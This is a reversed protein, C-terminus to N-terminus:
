ERRPAPTPAGAAAPAVPAEEWLQCALAEVVDNALVFVVDQGQVMAFVGDTRAKFGVMLTKQIGTEGTVGLTLTLAPQDLGYSALSAPAQCEIRVARLNSIVFLIGEVAERSVARGAGERVTWAGAADREVQQVVAGRALAMRTVAERGVALVQLNRYLLPDVPVAAALVGTLVNTRLIMVPERTRADASEFRAALTATGPLRQGVQLWRPAVAAVAAAGSAPATAGGTAGGGESPAAPPISEGVMLQVSFAPPVLGRAGLEADAVEEFREAQWGTLHRVLQGVLVSDAAWQTPECVRWGGEAARELALRQDGQRLAVGRVDQPRLSFVRRDRLDNVGLAFAELVARELTFIAATGNLRAYCAAADGDVERGVLLEQAETQGELWVTLRAAAEDPALRCSAVLGAVDAVANTRAALPLDDAPQDCVFQQVRLAYLAELLRMVVAGEARCVVPQQISWGAGERAVQVFGQGARQFGMRVVQNVGGALVRRERLHEVSAPLVDVLRAATAVVDPEGDVRVYVRQDLPTAHGVFLTHPGTVTQLVVRARPEELGFDALTLKRNAREEASVSEERRLSALVSLLRDMAAGDARALVPRKIYWGDKRKECEVRWTPQVISVATVGDPPLPLVRPDTKRPRAVPSWELLAALSGLLLVALLLRWTTKFHTM